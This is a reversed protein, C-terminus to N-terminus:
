EPRQLARFVLLIALGIACVPVGNYTASAVLAAIV